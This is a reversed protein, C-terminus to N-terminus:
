SREKDCFEFACIWVPNEAQMLRHTGAKKARNVQVQVIEECRVPYSELVEKIECVTEMSVANIVIRMKPNMRYLASLIAKMKGSSGGIFAHTPVPLNEIGEPAKALICEINKLGFKERNSKILALAEEKQEVAFVRVTHSLGAIEAAISGTGSGIDFVVANECLKLKCISIERVEEKTMPVKDRLFETDARGHTLRKDKVAPNKVCCTYLGEQELYLCEEPTLETIRQEPYSLQWGATITCKELGEELLLNGLRHMDSLGSMLLFTKKERGLREALDPIEQGHMSYIAAEQYSEGMCAALYSVSSIGPLVSLVAKLRGAKIEERLARYVSQCGSYFGSDGSFLLVAKRCEGAREGSQLEELYPIIQEAQYFPKKEIRPHYEAIMREAGLLIDAEEIAKCVAKTLSGKDGMGSGVLCIELEKERSIKKGCIAELRHCVEEFSAGEREKEHGIVYVPIGAKQAAELKERYGGNKGSEKTVLCKIRYQCLMAENMKETFPGQLALIRKGEIGQEMCLKLSELAPLIRVYLREKVEADKCFVALEKSGTTLLINGETLKLAEACAASSEFYRIQGVMSEGGSERKLRLYPIDTDKVAAKVNQTVAEAYPHTADVVASFERNRIFMRIEEENMRGTHVKILPHEGMATEGYETAVCVTNRIGAAALQESLRRGETTGAFILINKM